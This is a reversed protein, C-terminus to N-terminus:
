GQEAWSLRPSTRGDGFLVAAYTQELSRGTARLEEIMQDHVIRGQDVILCRQILTEAADLVHSSLIVTIGAAALRRILAKIDGVTIADIGNFAEDLLLVRPAHILSLAFALKKRTGQSAELALTDAFPLLQFFELLEESRSATQAASLGSLRGMLLLHERVALHEFLALDELVAGLARRWAALDEHISRGEWRIEGSTPTLLGTLMAMTTSKGAGNPGLLGVIQGQPIRLSIGRVAERTGYSKALGDLELYPEMPHMTFKGHALTL